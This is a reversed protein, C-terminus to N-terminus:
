FSWGRAKALLFDRFANLRAQNKMTTPYCFYTDFSPVELDPILQVLGSQQEVVYDPLMAIGAGQQVARKISLINNIQLDAVRKTGEPMSATELWNMDSLHGPVMEGFTVLRHRDLEEISALKGYRGVYGPSAYLHFHVTFLKRQILDPQQPQRFRIACDAQRPTLELEENTLILQLQIDPYLDLFEPLRETLWGSGLGVTTTVRLLGSPRDKTETLRLRVGELKMLVDNATQYLIEGQETMELGCAHRHFLPVGVEQELASVQRSIASQSLKLREAAHTFSGAEAAAQFVRLKDWDLGTNSRGTAPV